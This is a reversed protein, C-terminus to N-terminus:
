GHNDPFRKSTLAVGWEALMVSVEMIVGGEDVGVEITANDSTRRGPRKM